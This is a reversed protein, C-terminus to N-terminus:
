DSDGGSDGGSDGSDGGSDGSDGGIDDIGWAGSGLAGSRHREDYGEGTDGANARRRKYTDVLSSGVFILALAIFIINRIDEAM